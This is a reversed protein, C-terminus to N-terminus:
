QGDRGGARGHHGLKAVAKDLNRVTNLRGEAVLRSRYRAISDFLTEPACEEQAACSRPETKSMLAKM